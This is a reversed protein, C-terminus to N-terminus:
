KLIGGHYKNWLMSWKMIGDDLRSVKRRLSMFRGVVELLDSASAVGPFYYRKWHLRGVVSDRDATIARGPIM